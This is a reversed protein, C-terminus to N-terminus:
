DWWVLSERTLRDEEPEYEKMREDHRLVAAVAAERAETTMKETVWRWKGSELWVTHMAYDLDAPTHEVVPPLKPLRAELVRVRRLVGVATVAAFVSLGAVVVVLVTLAQTTM